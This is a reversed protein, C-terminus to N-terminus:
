PCNEEVLVFCKEKKGVQLYVLRGEFILDNDEIAQNSDRAVVQQNLSVGGGKIVRFFSSIFVYILLIFFPFYFLIFFASPLLKKERKSGELLLFLPPWALKRWCNLCVLEWLKQSHFPPQPSALFRM